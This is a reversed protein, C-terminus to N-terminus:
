SNQRHHHRAVRAIIHQDIALSAQQATYGKNELQTKMDSVMESRFQQRTLGEKQGIKKLDHHKHAAQVQAPTLKLVEALSDLRAQQYDAKSVGSPTIAPHASSASAVGLGALSLVGASAVGSAIKIVKKM